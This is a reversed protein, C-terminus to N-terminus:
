SSVLGGIIQQSKLVKNRLINLDSSLINIQSLIDQNVNKESTLNYVYVKAAQYAVAEHAYTLWYRANEIPDTLNRHIGDAGTIKNANNRGIFEDLIEGQRVM